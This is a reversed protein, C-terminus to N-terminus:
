QVGPGMAMVTGDDEYIINGKEKQENLYLQTARGWYILQPISSNNSIDAIGVGLVLAMMTIKKRSFAGEYFDLWSKPRTLIDNVILRYTIYSIFAGTNTNTIRTQMATQFNENPQLTLILSVSATQMDATRHLRLALTDVNRGARITYTGQVADYHTGSKATSGEEILVKYTRDVASVPGMVSVPIKVVSDKVEPPAYGFSVLGTDITNAFNTTFYINSNGSYYTLGQKKCATLVSALIVAMVIYQLYKM